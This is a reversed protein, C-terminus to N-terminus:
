DNARCAHSAAIIAIGAIMAIAAIMVIVAPDPMQAVSLSSRSKANHADPAAFLSRFNARFDYSAAITAIVTIMAIIGIMAVWVDHLVLAFRTVLLRLEAQFNGCKQKSSCFRRDCYMRITQIRCTQTRVGLM